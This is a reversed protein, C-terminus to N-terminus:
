PAPKNNANPNQEVRSAELLVQDLNPLAELLLIWRRLGTRYKYGM